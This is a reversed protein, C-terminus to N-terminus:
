QSMWQSAKCALKYTPLVYGWKGTLQCHTEDIVEVMHGDAYMTYAKQVRETGRMAGMAGAVILFALYVLGSFFFVAELWTPIGHPSIGDDTENDRYWIAGKRFMEREKENTSVELSAIQIREAESPQRETTTHMPIIVPPPIYTM